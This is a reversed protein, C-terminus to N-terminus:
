SLGMGYPAHFIDIISASGFPFASKTMIKVSRRPSSDAPTISTTNDVKIVTHGTTTDFFLLSQNTASQENVYR